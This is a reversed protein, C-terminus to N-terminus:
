DQPLNVFARYGHHDPLDNRFLREGDFPSAEPSFVEFVATIYERNCDDSLTITGSLKGIYVATIGDAAVGTGIMTYTFTKGGTREWAGRLTSLRVAPLGIGLSADFTPYELNNTGRNASSGTATVVWGSLVTSEPGQVGFWTGLLSCSRGHGGAMAIGPLSLGLMFIGLVLNRVMRSKM